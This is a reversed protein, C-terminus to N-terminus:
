CCVPGRGGRRRGHGPTSVGPRPGPPPGGPRSALFFGPPPPPLLSGPEGGGGPAPRVGGLIDVRRLVHGGITGGPLLNLLLLVALVILMLWGTHKLVSKEM